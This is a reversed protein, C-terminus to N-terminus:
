ILCLAFNITGLFEEITKFCAPEICLLVCCVGAANCAFELFLTGDLGGPFLALLLAVILTEALAEEKAASLDIVISDSRSAMLLLLLM